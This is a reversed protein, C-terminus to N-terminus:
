GSHWWPLGLLASKFSSFMVVFYRPILDLFLGAKHLSGGLLFYAFLFWTKPNTCSPSTSPHASVEEQSLVSIVVLQQVVMSLFVSSGVLFSVRCGFVFSFSCHSLLLPVIVIFDFGM